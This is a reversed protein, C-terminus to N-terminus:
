KLFKNLVWDIFDCQNKLLEERELQEFKKIDELVDVDFSEELEHVKGLTQLEKKLQQYTESSSYSVKTWNEHTLPRSGAFLYFGGDETKGLVFQEKLKDIAEEILSPKIHPSDGGMFIVGQYKKLVEQYVHALKQDLGGPGQYLCDVNKWLPHTPREEEALAMILDVGKFSQALNITVELSHSFFEEALERGVAEALRTKVPSYGPTKAFIVLAINKNSSNM